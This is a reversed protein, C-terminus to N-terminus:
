KCLRKYDAKNYVYLCRLGHVDGQSLGIRVKYELMGKIGPTITFISKDKYQKVDELELITLNPNADIQAQNPKKQVFFHNGARGEIFNLFCYNMISSPDYASFYATKAHGSERIFFCSKDFIADKQIHEHRLGAVHGFEHLTTRLVLGERNVMFNTDSQFANLYLYSKHQPGMVSYDEVKQCRGIPAKGGPVQSPIPAHAANGTVLALDYDPTELCSKWGVFHIGTRTKTYETTVKKQIKQKLVSDIAEQTILLSQLEEQQTPAFDAMNIPDNNQWCVKISKKNWKVTPEGASFTEALVPISIMLLFNTLLAKNMKM